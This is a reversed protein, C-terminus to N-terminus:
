TAGTQPASPSVRGQRSMMESIVQLDRRATEEIAFAALRVLELGVSRHFEESRDSVVQFTEGHPRVTTRVWEVEHRDPIKVQIDASGAYHLGLDVLYRMEANRKRSNILSRQQIQDLLYRPIELSFSRGNAM